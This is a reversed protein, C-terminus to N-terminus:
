CVEQKSHLREDIKEMAEGNASGTRSLQGPQRCPRGCRSLMRCTATRLRPSSSFCRPEIRNVYTRSQTGVSQCRDVAPETANFAALALRPNKYKASLYVLHRLAANVREDVDTCDRVRLAKATAPLFQDLGPEGKSGVALPDYRSEERILAWVLEQKVRRHKAWAQKVVRNFTVFEKDSPRQPSRSRTLFYTCGRAAALFRKVSSPRGMREVESGSRM